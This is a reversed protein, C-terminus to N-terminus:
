QRTRRRNWAALAFAGAAAGITDLGWDVPDPVRGPTFHQPFEDSIGYLSAIAVAVLVTRLSPRGDALANALLLGFVMYEALHGQVSWGSPITSGPRSSAYFIVAAWVLVLLWSVARRASLSM